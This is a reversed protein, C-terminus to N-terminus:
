LLRKMKSHLVICSLFIFKLIVKQDIEKDWMDNITCGASRMIVAMLWFMSLSYLDPLCGPNAALAISWGFPWFLLWCGTIM